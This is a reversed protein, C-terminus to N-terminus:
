TMMEDSLHNVDGAFVIHAAPFNRGVEEVCAEIYDLLAETTSLPKPPM